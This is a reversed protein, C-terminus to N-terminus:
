RLPAYGSPPPYEIRDKALTLVRDADSDGLVEFAAVVVLGFLKNQELFTGAEKLAKENRLKASDPQGFLESAGYEFAKIHPVPHL